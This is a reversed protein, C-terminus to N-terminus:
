FGNHFSDASLQRELAAYDHSCVADLLADLYAPPEKPDDEPRPRTDALARAAAIRAEMEDTFDRVQVVETGNVYTRPAHPLNNRQM